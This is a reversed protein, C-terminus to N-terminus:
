GLLTRITVATEEFEDVDVSDTTALMGRDGDLVRLVYGDDHVRVTFGYQGIDSRDEGRNAWRVSAGAFGVIEPYVNVRDVYGPHTTDTCSSATAALIAAFVTGRTLGRVGRKIGTM